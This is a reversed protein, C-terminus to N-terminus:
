KPLANAQATLATLTAARTLPPRTEHAHFSRRARVSGCALCERARLLAAKCGSPSGRSRRTLATHTGRSHRVRREARVGGLEALNRNPRQASLDLSRGGLVGPFRRERFLPPPSDPIFPVSLRFFLPISVGFFLFGFFSSPTSLPTSV